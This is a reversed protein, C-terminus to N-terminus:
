LPRLRDPEEGQGLSALHQRAVAMSKDQAM